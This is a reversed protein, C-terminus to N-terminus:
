KSAGSSFKKTFSIIYDEDDDDRLHDVDCIDVFLNGDINAKSSAKANLCKIIEEHVPPFPPVLM